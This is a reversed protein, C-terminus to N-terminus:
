TKSPIRATARVGMRRKVPSPPETEIIVDRPDIDLQKLKRSLADLSSERAIKRGNKRAVYFSENRQYEQAESSGLWMRIADEVSESLAGRAAGRLRGVKRRFKEELNDDIKLTIVAM